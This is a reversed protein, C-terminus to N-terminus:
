AGSGADDSIILVKDVYLGYVARRVAESYPMGFNQKLQILYSLTDEDVTVTIKKM